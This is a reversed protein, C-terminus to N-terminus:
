SSTSLCRKRIRNVFLSACGNVFAKVRRWRLPFSMFRSSYRRSRRPGSPVRCRRDAPPPRGCRGCRRDTLGIARFGQALPQLAGARQEAAVGGQEAANGRVLLHRRRHLVNGEHELGRRFLQRELLLEEGLEFARVAGVVIRALLLEAMGEVRIPSFSLCRSRTTPVCKQFGGCRTGSTSTVCFSFVLSSVTGPGHRQQAVGPAIRHMHLLVNRAEDAVPQLVRQLALRDRQDRGADAVGVGDVLHDFAAEARPHRHEARHLLGVQDADIEREVDLVHQHGIEVARGLRRLEDLVLDRGALEAHAGALAEAFPRRM